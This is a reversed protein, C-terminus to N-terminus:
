VEHPQRGDAVFGRGNIGGSLVVSMSGPPHQRLALRFDVTSYGLQRHAHLGTDKLPRLLESQVGNPDRQLHLNREDRKFGRLGKGKLPPRM